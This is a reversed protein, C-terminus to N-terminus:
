DLKSALLRDYIPWVKSFNNAVIAMQIADGVQAGLYMGAGVFLGDVGDSDDGGVIFAQGGTYADRFDDDTLQSESRWRGLGVMIGGGVGGGASLGTTAYVEGSSYKCSGFAIGAVGVVGVGGVLRAGYLQCSYQTSHLASVLVRIDESVQVKKGIIEYNLKSNKGNYGRFEKKMVQCERLFESQDSPLKEEIMAFLRIVGEETDIRNKVLERICKLTRRDTRDHAYASAVAFLPFTTLAFLGIIIKNM